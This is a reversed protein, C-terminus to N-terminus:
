SDNRTNTLLSGWGNDGDLAGFLGRSWCGNGETGMGVSFSLDTLMSVYNMVEGALRTGM